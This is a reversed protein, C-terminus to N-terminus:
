MIRSLRNIDLPIHSHREDHNHTQVYRRWVNDIQGAIECIEAKNRNM